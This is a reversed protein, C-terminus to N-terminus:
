KVGMDGPRAVTSRRIGTQETGVHLGLECAGFCWGGCNADELLVHWVLQLVDFGVNLESSADVIENSMRALALLGAEHLKWWNQDGAARNKSGEEFLSAAAICLAQLTETAFPGDVM